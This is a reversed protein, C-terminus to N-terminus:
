ESRLEWIPPNIIRLYPVALEADAVDAYLAMSRERADSVWAALTTDDAAMTVSTGRDPDSSSGSSRVARFVALIDGEEGRGREPSAARSRPSRWMVIRRDHPTRPPLEGLM